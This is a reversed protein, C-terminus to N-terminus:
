TVTVYGSNRGNPLSPLLTDDNFSQLPHLSSDRGENEGTREERAGKKESLFLNLKGLRVNDRQEIRYIIGAWIQCSPVADYPSPHEITGDEAPRRESPIRPIVSTRSKAFNGLADSFSPQCDGAIPLYRNRTAPLSASAKSELTVLDPLPPPVRIHLKGRFQFRARALSRARACICAAVCGSAGVVCVYM